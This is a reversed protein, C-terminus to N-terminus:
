KKGTKKGGRGSGKSKGKGGPAKESGKDKGKGKAKKAKGKGKGKPAEQSQEAKAQAKAKAKAKAKPKAAATTSKTEPEQKLGGAALPSEENKSRGIGKVVAAAAEAIEKAKDNEDDDSMEASDDEAPDQKADVVKKILDVLMTDPPDKMVEAAAKERAEIKKQEKKQILSVNKEAKDLAESFIKLIHDEVLTGSSVYKTIPNTVDLDALASQSVSLELAERNFNDFSIAQKLKTINAEICEGDLAKLTAYTTAHLIKVVDKRSSRKPITINVTFDENVTKPWLDDWMPEDQPLSPEKVGDPYKMAELMTEHEKARELMKKSKVLRVVDKELKNGLSKIQEVLEPHITKDNSATTPAPQSISARMQEMSNAMSALQSTLSSSSQRSTQAENLTAMAVKMCEQAMKLMEEAQNTKPPPPDNSGSSPEPTIAAIAKAALRNKKEDSGSHYVDSERKSNQM